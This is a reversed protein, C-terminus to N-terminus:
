RAAPANNEGPEGKAPGEEGASLGLDVQAAPTTPVAPEAPRGEAVRPASVTEKALPGSPPMAGSPYPEHRINIRVKGHIRLGLQGELIEHCLDVIQDSLSPINVSPSTDLDLTVEVDRGRSAVHAEVQRVGPLEDIRYELSQVVSDVTLQANGSGKTRVRVTRRRGRRLELVLLILLVLLLAGGVILFLLFFQDNFLGEEFASVYTKVLSAAELPRLLIVAVLVLWFLLALVMVVRNFVNM